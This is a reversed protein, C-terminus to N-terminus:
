TKGARSVDERLLAEVTALRAQATKKDTTLTSLRHQTRGFKERAWHPVTMQAYWNGGKKRRVLKAPYWELKLKPM